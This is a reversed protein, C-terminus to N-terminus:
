RGARGSSRRRACACAAEVSLSATNFKFWRVVTRRPTERRTNKKHSERVCPRDPRFFLYGSQLRRRRSRYSSYNASLAPNQFSLAPTPAPPWPPSFTLCSNDRHNASYAIDRFCSANLFQDGGRINPVANILPARLPQRYCVHM